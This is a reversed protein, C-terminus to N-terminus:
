KMRENYPWGRDIYRGIVCNVRSDYIEISNSIDLIAQNSLSAM